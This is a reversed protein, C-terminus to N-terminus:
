VDQDAAPVDSTKMTPPPGCPWSAKSDAGINAIANRGSESQATLAEEDHTCSDHVEGEPKAYSANRWKVSVVTIYSARCKEKPVLRM